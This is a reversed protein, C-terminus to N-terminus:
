PTVFYTKAVSFINQGDYLYASSLLRAHFGSWLDPTWATIPFYLPLPQVFNTCVESITRSDCSPYVSHQWSGSTLRVEAGQAKKERKADYGPCYVGCHDVADVISSAPIRDISM